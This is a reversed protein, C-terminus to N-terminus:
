PEILVANSDCIDKESQSIYYNLSIILYAKIISHTLDLIKVFSSEHFVTKSNILCSGSLM